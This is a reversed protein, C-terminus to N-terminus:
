LLGLYYISARTGLRLTIHGAYLPKHNTWNEAVTIYQVFTNHNEQLLWFKVLQTFCQM